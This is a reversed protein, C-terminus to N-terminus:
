EEVNKTSRTLVKLRIFITNEVVKPRYGGGNLKSVSWRCLDTVRM